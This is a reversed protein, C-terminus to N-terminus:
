SADTSCTRGARRSQLGSMGAGVRSYEPTPQPGFRVGLESLLAKTDIFRQGHLAVMPLEGAAMARRVSLADVRLLAAAQELTLLDPLDLLAM